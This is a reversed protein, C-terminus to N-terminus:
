KGSLQFNALSLGRKLFPELVSGLSKDEQGIKRKSTIETVAVNNIGTLM